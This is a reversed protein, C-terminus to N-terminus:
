IGKPILITFRTGVNTESKVEITGGHQDVTRKAMALGLGSGGAKGATVFMQFLRGRIEEPIGSGTDGVVFRVKGDVEAVEFSLTGGTAMAEGANKILNLLMRELAVADGNMVGVNTIQRDVKIRGRRELPKLGFDEVNKLVDEAAVAGHERRPRDSAFALIDEVLGSVSQSARRLIGAQDAGSMKTGPDELLDAVGVVANLPSKLDHGIQRVIEGIAALKEQRLFNAILIDNNERLREALVRGITKVIPLAHRELMQELVQAQLIGIVSREAAVIRASRPGSALIAMEGFFNNEGMTTVEHERDGPLTRVVRVAGSAILYLAGLDDSARDGGENLIIEGPQAEFLPIGTLLDEFSGPALDQFLLNVKIQERSAPDPAAIERM